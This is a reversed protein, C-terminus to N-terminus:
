WRVITFVANDGIGDLTAHKGRVLRLITLDCVEQSVGLKSLRGYVDRLRMTKHLGIESKFLKLVDMWRASGGCFWNALELETITGRNTGYLRLAMKGVEDAEDFGSGIGSPEIALDEDLVNTLTQPDPWLFGHEFPNLM